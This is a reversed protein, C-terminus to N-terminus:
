RGRVIRMIARIRTREPAEPALELFREFRIAMLDIRSVERYSMGAYYYAYAFSPNLEAARDFTEAAPGYERQFTLVQGLQYSAYARALDSGRGATTAVGGDSPSTLTGVAQMAATRAEGLAGAAPPASGRNVLAHASRGILGWPDSDGRASLESYVRRADEVQGLRDYSSAVLYKAQPDSVQSSVDVIRQYRGAEFWEQLQKVQPPTGQLLLTLLAITAFRM